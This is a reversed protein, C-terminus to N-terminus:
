FTYQGRDLSLWEIAAARRQDPTDLNDPLRHLEWAIAHELVQGVELYIWPSLLELETYEPCTYVEASLGNDPYSQTADRRFLEAVVVNGM